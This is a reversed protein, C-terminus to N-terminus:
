SQEFLTSDYFGSSAVYDPNIFRAAAKGYALPRGAIDTVIGGAGRLVADAAATDWECTPSFRPYLDAKGAAVACFKLSSGYKVLKAVKYDELFRDLKQPDGHSRSAVVTLGEGPPKRVRITKESDTDEAWRIATGPGCAAYLEGRVPAYVVGILPAGQHILAINVTYDGSGSIFEKTGDVPDVLWFYEAGTIDPVIGAEFSEEGIVPTDPTLERLAGIIVREAERDAMTVPSGDSKVEPEKYGAEDFFGLTAEGAKLAVRRVINCLALPHQLLKGTM